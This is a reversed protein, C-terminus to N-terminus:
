QQSVEKPLLLDFAHRPHSAFHRRTAAIRSSGSRHILTIALNRLAALIQPANGAPLTTFLEYLSLLPNQKLLDQRHDSTLSPLPLPLATSHM